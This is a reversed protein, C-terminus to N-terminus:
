KMKQLYHSDLFACIVEPEKETLLCPVLNVKEEKLPFTLDYEETLRLLWSHLSEPYDKWVLGIDEHRLRGDQKMFSEFSCKNIIVYVVRHLNEPFYGEEPWLM